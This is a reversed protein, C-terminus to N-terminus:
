QNKSRRSNGKGVLDRRVLVFLYVGILVTRFALRLRMHEIPTFVAICYLAGALGGYLFLSKLDYRVPYYKQGIFYSLLMMLLNGAFSAWACAMYSYKPIFVLNLAIIVVFGVCSFISGWWTKDTLKYWVSLNYYVAFFLEGMLVIPVVPLAVFYRSPVFIHRILDIYFTVGLFVLLGVAVFYKMVTSYSQKADSEKGKEFMFPDFAYRFAQTFVVMIVAIKFCAGYLGLQGMAAETDPYVAPFIIKDIVQNSMGAIGMLMLPFCYRLMERALQRDFSLRFRPMQLLLGLTQISTAIINAVLVYGVCYDERWFWRILDPNSQNIRPCIVLFFMCFLIYLLAQLAKFFGFRLAKKEYRLFAFPLAIFVDMSLIIILMQLYADPIRESWLFPRIQGLFGLFVLLYVAIIAVIISMSTAYVSGQRDKAALNVFRFFGTELGFTLIVTILAGCAYLNTMMGFDSESSFTYAFLPTALWNITKTLIASGGYVVSDKALSKISAM